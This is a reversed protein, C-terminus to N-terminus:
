ISPPASALADAVGKASVKERLPKVKGRLAKIQEIAQSDRRKQSCSHL